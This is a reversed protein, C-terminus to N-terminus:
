QFKLIDFGCVNACIFFKLFLADTSITDEWVLLSGHLQEWIVAEKDKM